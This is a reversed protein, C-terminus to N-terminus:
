ANILVQVEAASMEALTENMGQTIQPQLELVEPSIHLSKLTIVMEAKVMHVVLATLRGSSRNREFVITAEERMQECTGGRSEDRWFQEGFPVAEIWGAGAQEFM